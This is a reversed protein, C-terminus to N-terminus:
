HSRDLQGQDRGVRRPTPRTVIQDAQAPSPPHSHHPVASFLQHSIDLSFLSSPQSVLGQREAEAGSELVKERHLTGVHAIHLQKLYTQFAVEGQLLIIETELKAIQANTPINTAKSTSRSLPDPSLLSSNGLPSLPVNMISSARSSAGSPQASSDTSSLTGSWALPDHDPSRLRSLSRGPSMSSRPSASQLAQFNTYHTTAPMHPTPSRSRSVSTSPSRPTPTHRRSMTAGDDDEADAASRVVKEAFVSELEQALPGKKSRHGQGRTRSRGLFSEADRLDHSEEGDTKGDGRFDHLDDPHEQVANRDCEAMVDATELRRWRNTDTLETALDGTLLSPHLTHQRILPQLDLLHTLKPWSGALPRRFSVKSRDRVIASDIGLVGDGRAGKWEKGKLYGGADKLFAAFNCPYIGYLITFLAKPDPPPADYAEENTPLDTFLHLETLALEAWSLM